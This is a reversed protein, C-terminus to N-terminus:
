REFQYSDYSLTTKTTEGQKIDVTLQKDLFGAREHWVRFSYKGAPLDAIEFAGSDDSVAAFPHDVVLMAARMRPHFDDRIEFPAREPRIFCDDFKTQQGPAVAQNITPNGSPFLHFNGPMPGANRLTLTQGVRAIAAHPSFAVGDSSLLFSQPPVAAAMGSPAQPLYVFVGAIGTEPVKGALRVTGAFRGLARSSREAVALGAAIDTKVGAKPNDLPQRKPGPKRYSADSDPISVKLDGVEILNASEPTVSGVVQPSEGAQEGVGVTVETCLEWKWVPVLNKVVFEGNRDTKIRTGFRWSSFKGWRLYIGSEVVRDVLPEGTARDILRGHASATPAVRIDLDKADATIRVIAAQSRDETAAYVLMAAPTRRTQFRGQVDSVAHFEDAMHPEETAVGEITANAVAKQPDSKLVVRGALDRRDVPASRLNIEFDKPDKIQFVANDRGLARTGYPVSRSFYNAALYYVGPAVFFEFRGQDDTRPRRLIKPLLSKRVNKPNPIRREKPLFRYDDNIVWENLALSEGAVPRTASELTWRGFVRAAPQVVLELPKIPMEARVVCTRRSSVFRGSTAVFVYFMEPVVRIEFQGREDCTTEGQFSESGFGEGAVAVAAGAAPKGDPFSVSGRLPEKHLLVVRIEDSTSNPDFNPRDSMVYDPKSISFPTKRRNDAPIIHFTARGAGDTTQTFTEMGQTNLDRGKRPRELYWPAVRVGALPRENGDLIRLRATRAGNLVFKIAKTDAALTYPNGPTEGPSRYNFYDLGIEPKVAFVSELEVDAPVRLVARGESDSTETEVEHMHACAGVVAGAVPQGGSDTVTLPIERAAKMVLRVPSRPGSHAARPEASYVYVGRRLGSSDKGVLTLESPANPLTLSFRGDAASRVTGVFSFNRVTVLVDGVPAGAESVVSGHLEWRTDTASAKSSASKQSPRADTDVVSVAVPKETQTTNNDADKPPEMRTVHFEVHVEGGNPVSVEDSDNGTPNFLMGNSLTTLLLSSRGPPLRMEFTGDKNVIAYHCAGGSLPRTPGYIRVGLKEGNRLELPKGTADDIVRGKLVGGRILHIPPATTTQSCEVSLSELAAATVDAGTKDLFINFKGRPLGTFRYQGLEDSTTSAFFGRAPGAQEHLGQLDVTIGVTPRGVVDDVVRGRIEGGKVLRMLPAQTPRGRRAAVHEVFPANLDGPASSVWLIFTGEPLTDFRYRGDARTEVVDRIYQEPRDSRVEVVAGAAPKGTEGFVVQGSITAADALVVDASGPVKRYQVWTEVYGPYVVRMSPPGMMGWGGRWGPPPGAEAYGFEELDDVAFEGKADTRACRLGEVPQLLCRVGSPDTAFSVQAGALPKGREDRVMGRFTAAKRMAIELPKGRSNTTAFTALGPRRAVVVDNDGSRSKPALNAFTFRGKDDTSTQQILRQTMEQFNTIYLLVQAGAVPRKQSDVCSGGIEDTGLGLAAVKSPEANTEEPAAKAEPPASEVNPPRVSVSAAALSVVALCGVITARVRGSCRLTIRDARDLITSIRLAFGSPREWIGVANSVVIRRVGALDRAWAVLQAAYDAPGILSAAAADALFEQDQRIRRRLWWYAPHAWLLPFLCRDLALLWLDGNRIHAWEHGLVARLEGRQSNEGFRLPLVITPELAGTAVPTVLRANLRLRPLRAGGGVITRLEDILALPATLSKRILRSAQWAGVALRAAMLVAGTLFLLVADGVITRRDIGVGSPNEVAVAPQAVADVPREPDAEHPPDMQELPAPREPAFPIESVPLEPAQRVTAEVQVAPREERAFLQRPDIRPRSALVCLVAAVLLSVLTGWALAMRWAPQKILCFAAGALMLLITAALYFDALWLAIAEIWPTM